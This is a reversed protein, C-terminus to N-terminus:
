CCSSRGTRSTPPRSRASCSRARSPAKPPPATPSRLVAGPLVLGGRYAFANERGIAVPRFVQEQTDRIVIEDAAREARDSANQVRLFVAFWLEDSLVRDAPSVATLYHIDEANAPNRLRSIQM